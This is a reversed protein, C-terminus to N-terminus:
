SNQAWKLMAKHDSPILQHNELRYVAPTGKAHMRDFLRDISWGKPRFRTLQNARIGLDQLSLSCFQAVGEPAPARELFLWGEGLELCRMYIYAGLVPAEGQQKAVLACIVRGSGKMKLLSPRMAACAPCGLDSFVVYIPGKTALAEPAQSRILNEEKTSLKYPRPAGFLVASVFAICCILGMGIRGAVPPTSRSLTASFCLGFLALCSVWSLFCYTCFQVLVIWAYGQLGTMFLAACGLFVQPLSLKFVSPILLSVVLVLSFFVVGVQWLHVGLISSAPSSLVKGCSNGVLCGVTSGPASVYGALVSSVVGLLAALVTLIWIPLRSM